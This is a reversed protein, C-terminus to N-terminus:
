VLKLGDKIKLGTEEGQLQREFVVYKADEINKRIIIKETAKSVSIEQEESIKATSAM